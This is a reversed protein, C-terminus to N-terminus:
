VPYEEDDGDEDGDEEEPEQEELDAETLTRVIKFDTGLILQKRNTLLVHSSASVADRDMIQNDEVLVDTDLCTIEIVYALPDRNYDNVLQTFWFEVDSTVHLGYVGAVSPELGVEDLDNTEIVSAHEWVVRDCTGLDTYIDNAREEAVELPLISAATECLTM